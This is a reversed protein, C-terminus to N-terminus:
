SAASGEAYRIDVILNLHRDIHFEADPGIISTSEREEVVAPGAFREGPRLRYRDFVRAQVFGHEPFYVRRVGKVPDGGANSVGVFRLGVKPPEASARLRWSLVELPIDAIRRDFQREYAELFSRQLPAAMPPAIAGDPVPTEVEFGQGVYRMDALRTIEITAPDAGADRLLAVAQREMEDYFAAVAAWDVAALGSVASRVLDVAPPAVLFGFASMVGAGLPIILRSLKLLRALEYAHVPGAGGFAVLAYKRHDRGKEAIYMRTAAAMNENVIRHVGAAAEVAGLGLREAALATMAQEVKGMELQMEGGLFYDPSLYGLVLDADTVTPTMGGRNYCVPGPVSGASQPGVKLLGMADVWAKSGGGAGIEILDIVPVKLPIGSGKRFRRVRAAEFSTSREPRGDEILCMKATTGGMDFSILNPEGILRSYFCSATAGAAPGSEILHVPQARAARVTTLGGNSLMIYLPGALGMARLREELRALYRDMLPQVYANACATNGREYERIEPAVDSSLTIPIGPMLDRLLEGVRREHVPNRYSHMLCVAVAEVGERVLAAAAGAAESEVLPLLVQGDADIREAVEVRRRRPVLPEPKDFFLDYLDYRMEKGMEHADRFGRTTVLGVKAGKREIVTNTVLTTGHVIDSVEAMSRGAERLIREVGELIAESPDHPTTLRKGTRITGKANDVLVFDTFTGGVDVGIRVPASM